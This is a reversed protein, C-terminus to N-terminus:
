DCTETVEVADGEHCERVREGGAGDDDVVVRVGRTAAVTADVRLELVDSTEGPALMEPTTATTVAVNNGGYYVSVPVGARMAAVGANGVRVGVILEGDDCAERCVGAVLVADPSASGSTPALDGGRFTNWTPWNTPPSPPVRLDDDIHVLDYAHQNWVPRDGLWDDNASGLVYIGFADDDHHGGGNPVVIEAMGDGDVDAVVPYEHLTRSSHRDDALRVAGTAGDFIWLTTEDAYVVEAQGDGDFDFVSSGTTFSSADTIPASWSVTGDAEYVAYAEGTAAGIEPVGDADFDAVTPPGGSGEGVLPWSARTACAHDIVRMTGDGVLVVEGLGDGDFDAAAPLGDTGEATCLEAGGADYLTKGAVLEQLGDGDLDAAFSAYGAETFAAFRGVGSEGASSV